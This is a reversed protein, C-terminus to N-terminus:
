DSPSKPRLFVITGVEGKHPDRISLSTQRLHADHFGAILASYSPVSPSGWIMVADPALMSVDSLIPGVQVGTLPAFLAAIIRSDSFYASYLGAEWGVGHEPYPGEGITVIKRCGAQKLSDAARYVSSQYDQRITRFPSAWYLQVGLLGAGILVSLAWQWPRSSTSRPSSDASNQGNLPAAFGLSLAILVAAPPILYRGDFVLMCYAVALALTGLLAIMAFLFRVQNAARQQALRWVAVVLALLGGPTLLVLLEKGAQPLNQSENGAIYSLLSPRAIKAKWFPSGPPMVDSVMYDDYIRTTSQLTTLGDSTASAKKLAPDILNWRLQYGTTFEGYKSRLATGWAGWVLIPFIAAVLLCRFGRGPSRGSTCVVALLTLCALLPMAVAKALFSFAHAAGLGLWLRSNAPEELCGLLLIFYILITATFLLDAGIFCVSFAAVGRAVTFWLVAVASLLRSGWLRQTLMYVLVLSIAFLLLMLLRAALTRDIALFSTAAILWSILPSWYGHLSARFDGAALHRAIGIYSIADANINHGCYRWFWAIQFCWYLVAATILLEPVHRRGVDPTHLSLTPKRFRNLSTSNRPDSTM